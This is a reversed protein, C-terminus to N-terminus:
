RGVMKTNINYSNISVPASTSLADPWSCTSVQILVYDRYRMIGAYSERINYIFHIKEQDSSVGNWPLWCMWERSAVGDSM